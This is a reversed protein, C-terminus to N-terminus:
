HVRYFRENCDKEEREKLSIIDMVADFQVKIKEWLYVDYVTYREPRQKVLSNLRNIERIYPLAMNFYRLSQFIVDYGADMNSVDTIREAM